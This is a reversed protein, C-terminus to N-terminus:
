LYNLASVSTWVNDYNTNGDAYLLTGDADTERMILWSAASTATGPYALGTYTYTGTSSTRVTSFGSPKILLNGDLDSAGYGWGNTSNKFMVGRVMTIPEATRDTNWNELDGIPQNKNVGDNTAM